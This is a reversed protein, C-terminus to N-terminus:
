HHRCPMPIQSRPLRTPYEMKNPKPSKKRLSQPVAAVATGSGSGENESSSEEGNSSSGEPNSLESDSEDESGCDDPCSFESASGGSHAKMKKMNQCAVQMPAAKMMVGKGPAWM